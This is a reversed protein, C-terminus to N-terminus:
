VDNYGLIRPEDDRWVLWTWAASPTYSALTSYSRGYDAREFLAGTPDLKKIRSLNDPAAM